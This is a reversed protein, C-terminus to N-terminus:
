AQRAELVYGRSPVTRIELGLSGIRRRLRTTHVRLANNATPSGDPWVAGLIAAYPVVQGFRDALTRLLTHELPSLAVWRGRYTVRGDDDVVPSPSHRAAREALAGARVRVDADDVPLRIWDEVCDGCQPPTAEPAVLLLRPTGAARLRELGAAEEPWRVVAVPGVDSM